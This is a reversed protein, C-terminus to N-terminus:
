LEQLWVEPEIRHGPNVVVDDRLRRLMQEVRDARQLIDREARGSSRRAVRSDIRGGGARGRRGRLRLQEAVERGDAVVPVRSHDCVVGHLAHHVDITVSPSPSTRAIMRTYRNITAFKWDHSSGNMMMIAIGPASAPTSQISTSVPVVILTSDIIPAIMATPTPTALPLRSM